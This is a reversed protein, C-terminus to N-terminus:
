NTAKGQLREALVPDIVATLLDKVSAKIGGLKAGTLDAEKLVAGELDCQTLDATTLVARRLKARALVAYRLSAGDLSTAKFRNPALELPEM